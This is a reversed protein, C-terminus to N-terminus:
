KLANILLAVVSAMSVISSAIAVKEGTSMGPKQDKMPIIIECGPQVVQKNRNKIKSTQGNMYVIYGKNKRANESYGGAQNIYYSVPKGPQYLVTNPNMVSGLIRVTNNFEPVIIKDDAKLILDHQSGPNKLALDLDIGIPAFSDETISDISITDTQLGANIRKLNKREDIQEEVTRKRFLKAGKTYASPTLGGSNRIMDSIRENKTEIPYQGPFMVEGELTVNRQEFYSPSKRVYVVDYPKLSFENDNLSALGDEISFSYTEVLKPSAITSSPDIIRRAVEVKATSAASLLGGAKLILDKISTNEIYPYNGPVAVLGSITFPGYVEDVIKSSITLTDNKILAVDPSVGAFMNELNISLLSFTLDNKQRTLLARELFADEKVGGAARILDLVTRINAGVEYDGPRFVSGMVTVRNAYLDYGGKVTMFDGDQMLFTAFDSSNITYIHDYEGSKRTITIEDKYAKADFGGSFFLLDKVTENDKMEYYMSRRVKGSSKVLSKYPPVIIVDGEQLTINSATEGYILYRYVDITSVKKGDRFVDIARLSGIDTVGGALFLANFATSFSTLTYTGPNEVEGIVNISITKINGLSLKLSSDGDPEDVGAYIESLRQKLINEAEAVTLGSLFVPGLNDFYVTGEPSITKRLNDQSAGWIDVVIEDGGGLRYNPSTPINLNPAFSLDKKNFIDRGFIKITDGYISDLNPQFKYESLLQSSTVTRRENLTNSEITQNANGQELRAKIRDLQAKTVGRKMLTIGIENQDMGQANSAKVFELVQNDTMQASVSIAIFAFLFFFLFSKLQMHYKKNM